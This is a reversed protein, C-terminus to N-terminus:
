PTPLQSRYETPSLGIFKKFVRNFHTLSQFGVEFAIESIRLNHNLLLNKAKEIRVRSVYETFNLGTAKKFMKCFYYTRTNVVRAVQGLSLEDSQHEKIFEKARRVVYPEANDQMVVIQNSVMSLHQSFITLMVVISEYQVPTLLRTAFYAEHLEDRNIQTGLDAIVKAVKAFQAETPKRCLVQGTQLFGVLREGVRVPVATDCLGFPCPVTKASEQASETLKQQVHLCLSCTSSKQAIIACFANERRKGHHPLQWSEIPKLAVPMGTAETFAREYDQYIKSNCLVEILSHAPASEHNVGVGNFEPPLPSALASGGAEEPASASM